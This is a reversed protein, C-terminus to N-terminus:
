ENKGQDAEELAAVPDERQKYSCMELLHLGVVDNVFARMQKPNQLRQGRLLPGTARTTTARVAQRQKM